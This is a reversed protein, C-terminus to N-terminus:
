EAKVLLIMTMLGTITVVVDVFRGSLLDYPVNEIFLFGDIDPSDKYTRAVYTSLCDERITMNIKRM